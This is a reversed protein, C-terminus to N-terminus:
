PKREFRDAVEDIAKDMERNLTDENHMLAPLLADRMQLAGYDPRLGTTKRLSQEVAIWRQRVRVKYGSASHQDVRAFTATADQRVIDGVKRFAERVFRRTDKDTNRCARLFERYGKVRITEKGAM